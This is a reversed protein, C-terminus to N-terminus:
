RQCKEMLKPFEQSQRAAFKRFKEICGLCEKNKIFDWFFCFDYFMGNKTYISIPTLNRPKSLIAYKIVESKQPNQGGKLVMGIFFTLPTKFFEPFKCCSLCLIKCLQHLFTFSLPALLQCGKFNLWCFISRNQAMGSIKSKKLILTKLKKRVWITWFYWFSIEGM